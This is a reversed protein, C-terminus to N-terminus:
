LTKLNCILAINAALTDDLASDRCIFLTDKKLGLKLLDDLTFTDEFCTYFEQNKERDTVKYFTRNPPIKLIDITSTLSFGEKLMAEFLLDETNWNAVLHDAFMEMQQVYEEATIKDSDIPNWQLLNSKSLCFFRCGLSSPSQKELKRIVLHIREKGIASVAKYGAARASSNEPTPEPLQVMIFQRDGNDLHNVKIVAEATACSGAFFDMILDEKNTTAEIIKALVSVDKPNEFIDIGFLDRLEKMAARRDKYIVSPLVQGETEHLYRKLTPVKSEDPGYEIRGENEAQKFTEEKPFVWGRAPIKVPKRTVPHLISYRPGGGGPWSIDSPFYIGKADVKNYHRHSWAPDNKSMSSYWSRLAKSIKEYNDGYEEKLEKVKSYISDIGEKRTRWQEDNVKLQEKNKAYCIIYDHSVSVFKSDNKLGGEWTFEAIFNEEGFIENMIMRLNYVERDDISVFIVGDDRLLQGAVFLRPYMMSLWKSHYRGCKEVRSSNRKGNENEQGTLRLYTELPDSYNDQYVVNGNINYPPDIYIMKIRRYYSKYLLKMVELNDGEVFLHKASDFNISEEKLPKLTARSPIRIIRIANQKGAWSLSYKESGKEINDGLIEKIKNLDIKGESFFEPFLSYLAKIKEQM